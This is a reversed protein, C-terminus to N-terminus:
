VMAPLLGVNILVPLSLAGSNETLLRSRRRKVCVCVCVCVCVHLRVCVCMCALFRMCVATCVCVCVCVCVRLSPVFVEKNRRLPFVCPLPHSDLHSTLTSAEEGCRKEDDKQAAHTRPLPGWVGEGAM